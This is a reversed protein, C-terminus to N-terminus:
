CKPSLLLYIEILKLAIWDVYHTGPWGLTCLLIRGGAEGSGLFVWFFCVLVISLIYNRRGWENSFFFRVVLTTANTTPGKPILSM